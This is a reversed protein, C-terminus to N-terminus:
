KELCKIQKIAESLTINLKYLNSLDNALKWLFRALENRDKIFNKAFQYQRQYASLEQKLRFKDDQLYKNWWEEPKEQQQDSHTLEHIQIHDALEQGNPNYIVDGYCFLMSEPLIPFVEKIQKINPPYDIIQKM